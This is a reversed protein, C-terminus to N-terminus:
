AERSNRLCAFRTDYNMQFLLVIENDDCFGGSSSIKEVLGEKREIKKQRGSAFEHDKEFKRAKRSQRALLDRLVVDIRADLSEVVTM